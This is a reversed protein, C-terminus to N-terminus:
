RDSHRPGRSHLPAVAQLEAVFAARRRGARLVLLGVLLLAWGIASFLFVSFGTRPLATLGCVLASGGILPVCSNYM